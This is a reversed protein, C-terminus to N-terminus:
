ASFAKLNFQLDRNNKATQLQDIKIESFLTALHGDKLFDTLDFASRTNGSFIIQNNQRSITNFCVNPDFQSSLSKFFQIIFQSNRLEKQAQLTIDTQQKIQAQFHQKISEYSELQRNLENLKAHQQDLRHILYFHLVMLIMLACSIATGIIWRLCRIEYQQRAERWPLLNVNVM